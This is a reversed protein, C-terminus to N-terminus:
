WSYREFNELMGRTRLVLFSRTDLEPCQVPFFSAFLCFALLKIQNSHHHHRHRSNLNFYNIKILCKRLKRFHVLTAINNYPLFNKGLVKLKILLINHFKFNSNLLEDVKTFPSLLIKLVNPEQINM